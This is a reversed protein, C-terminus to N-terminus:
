ASHLRVLRSAPRGYMALVWLSARAYRVAQAASRLGERDGFGAPDYWVRPMGPPSKRTSWPQGIQTTKPVDAPLKRVRWFLGFFSLL